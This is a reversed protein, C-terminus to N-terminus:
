GIRVPGALINLLETSELCSEAQGNVAKQVMTQEVAATAVEGIFALRHIAEAHSVDWSQARAKVARYFDPDFRCYVVESRKGGCIARYLLSVMRVLLNSSAPVKNM